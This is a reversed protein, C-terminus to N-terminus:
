GGRKELLKGEPDDTKGLYAKKQKGDQHHRFYWYPGREARTGDKRVYVRMEAQLWGDAHARQEVVYSVPSAVAETAESASAPVTAESPEGERNRRVLEDLTRRRLDELDARTLRRLQEDTMM